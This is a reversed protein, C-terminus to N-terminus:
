PRMLIFSNTVRQPLSRRGMMQNLHLLVKQMEVAAELALCGEGAGELALEVHRGSRDALGAAGPQRAAAPREVRGDPTAVEVEVNYFQDNLIERRLVRASIGQDCRWLEVSQQPQAGEGSGPAPVVILSELDVPQPGRVPDMDSLGQAQRRAAKM